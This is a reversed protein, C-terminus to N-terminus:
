ILNRQKLNSKIMEPAAMIFDGLQEETLYEYRRNIDRETIENKYYDAIFRVQRTLQNHEYYPLYDPIESKEGDIMEYPKFDPHEKLYKYDLDNWDLKIVRLFEPNKKYEDAYKSYTPICVTSSWMIDTLLHVYYGLYFSYAKDHGGDKLYENYFDKYRCDRKSGTPTWHTVSPPPVFEGFSDKKGYGCDPALNGVVFEYPYPIACNNLFYDAMRLHVVWTAM